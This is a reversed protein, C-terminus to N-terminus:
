RGKNGASVKKLIQTAAKEHHSDQLEMKLLRIGDPGMGRAVEVAATDLGTGSFYAICCFQIARWGFFDSHVVRYAAAAARALM